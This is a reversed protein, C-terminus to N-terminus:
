RQYNVQTLCRPRSADCSSRGSPWPGLAALARRRFGDLDLRADATLGGIPDVAQAYTAAAVDPELELRDALLAVTEERNAPALAWRVVEVYGRIYGELAPGNAQAWSRQVFGATAQYPGLIKFPGTGVPAINYASKSIDEKEWVHKPIVGNWLNYLLTPAPERLRFVATYPDPADM